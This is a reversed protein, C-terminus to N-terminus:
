YKNVNILDGGVNTGYQFLIDDKFVFINNVYGDFYTLYTKGNKEYSKTLIMKDASDYSLFDLIQEEYDTQMDSALIVEVPKSNNIKQDVNHVTLALVISALLTVGVGVIIIEKRTFEKKEANNDKNDIRDEKNEKNSETEM